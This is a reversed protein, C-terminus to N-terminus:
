LCDDVYRKVVNKILEAQKFPFSEIKKNVIKYM